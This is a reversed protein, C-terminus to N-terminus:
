RAYEVARTERIVTVKIQGPYQVEKEIRKVVAKAVRFAELDDVRDPHVIIRVERGAQIAYAKAVGEFSDAIQELQTLRKIYNELSERRAGPRAASLADAAAVLVAEVSKAEFDGHHTSMAHVVAESEGYKRLLEMGIQVHTGEMEHDAAKGVDHLLGARRAVEVNAELEGAMLAALHAVEVSHRLVNQGYSTRFKLKGLLRVLEPHLGHVRADYCAQEGAERVINDIEKETKQYMEEIRAPHIRGDAILKELTQRAVERRIPEFGSIVVTDPTDDIILDVGTLAEFARINRGERGIIRGKMDDSPLHVVTVSMEAVQDAACRQIAQAIIEKAQREATQRAQAEIERALQAAEREAEERVSALIVNKAEERTLGSIRELEKVQRDRAEEAAARVRELEEERRRYQEERRELQELKRDLQEEKQALRREQRQLEARRERLEEQAEARLRHSEEKAALSAERKLAEAEHRAEELIRRSQDRASGVKAEYTFARVAMGAAVGVALAGLALGLAATGSLLM